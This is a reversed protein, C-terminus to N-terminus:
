FNFQIFILAHSEAFDLEDDKKYYREDIKPNIEKERRGKVIIISYENLWCSIGESDPTRDKETHDEVTPELQLRGSHLTSVESLGSM